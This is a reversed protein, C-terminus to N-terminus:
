LNVYEGYKKLILLKSKIINELEKIRKLYNEFDKKNFQLEKENQNETFYKYEALNKNLNGTLNILTKFNPEIKLNHEVDNDSADAWTKEMISDSM